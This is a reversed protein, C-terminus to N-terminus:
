IKDQPQGLKKLRIIEERHMKNIKIMERILNNDIQIRAGKHKQGKKSSFLHNGKCIKCYYKETM